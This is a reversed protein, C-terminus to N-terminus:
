HITCRVQGIPGGDGLFSGTLSPGSAKFAPAATGTLVIMGPELSGGLHVVQNVLWLLSHWPNGMVETAPVSTVTKNNVSLTLTVTSLDISHAPLAPGIIFRHSGAGSAVQDVVGAAGEAPDFRNEALEFACHVFGVLPKLDAVTALPKEIRKAITFAVETEILLDRFIEKRIETGPPVQQLLFLPASAPAAIGFQQQAARSAYAVKYGIVPGLEQVLSSTLVKQIDYAQPLSFAGFSKTLPPMLALTRRADVVQQVLQQIRSTDLSQASLTEIAFFHLGLMAVALRLVSNAHKLVGAYQMM